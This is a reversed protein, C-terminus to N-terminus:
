KFDRKILYTHIHMSIYFPEHYCTHIHSVTAGNVNILFVVYRGSM